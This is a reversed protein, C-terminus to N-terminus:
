APKRRDVFARGLAEARGKKAEIEFGWVAIGAEDARERFRPGEVILTSDAEIALATARAKQMADITGPGVTPLDFRRDQGPRSAKVITAGAGGLEGARRIMADTGEVAELAIVCGRRLAASQGVGARGLQEVIGRGVEFDARESESPPRASLAGPKALLPGLLQDQHVIEFGRGELWSAIRGILGEDDWGDASALLRIAEADPAIVDQAELLLSKSFKGVILLREVKARTLAEVLATLQGLRMRNESPGLGPETIGDFGFVECPATESALVRLAEAPLRGAGAILGLRASLDREESAEDM